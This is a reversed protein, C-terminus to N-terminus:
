GFNTLLSYFHKPHGWKEDLLMLVEPLTQAYLTGGEPFTILWPYEITQGNGDKMLPENINHILMLTVGNRSYPLIHRRQDDVCAELYELTCGLILLGCEDCHKGVFEGTWDLAGKHPGSRYQFLVQFYSDAGLDHASYKQFIEQENQHTIAQECGICRIYRIDADLTLSFSSVALVRVDMNKKM